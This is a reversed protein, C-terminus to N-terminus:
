SFQRIKTYASDSPKKIRSEYTAEIEVEVVGVKIRYMLLILLNCIVFLESNM